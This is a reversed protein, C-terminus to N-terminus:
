SSSHLIYPTNEYEQSKLFLSLFFGDIVVLLNKSNHSLAEKKGIRMSLLIRSSDIVHTEKPVDYM